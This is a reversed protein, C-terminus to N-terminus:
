EMAANLEALAKKYVEKQLNTLQTRAQELEPADGLAKIAAALKKLQEAYNMAEEKKPEEEVKPEEDKIGAEKRADALLEKALETVWEREKKTLPKRLNVVWCNMIADEADAIVKEVTYNKITERAYEVDEGDYISNVWSWLENAGDEITQKRIEVLRDKTFNMTMM